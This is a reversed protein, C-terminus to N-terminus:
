WIVADNVCYLIGKQLKLWIKISQEHHYAVPAYTGIVKGQRMDGFYIGLQLRVFPTICVSSLRIQRHYSRTINKSNHTISIFIISCFHLACLRLFWILLKPPAYYHSSNNREWWGGVVFHRNVFLLSPYERYNDNKSWKILHDEMVTSTASHFFIRIM